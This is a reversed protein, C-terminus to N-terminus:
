SVVVIGPDISPLRNCEVVVRVAIMGGQTHDWNTYFVSYKDGNETYKFGGDIQVVSGDDDKTHGSIIAGQTNIFWFADKSGTEDVARDGLYLGNDPGLTLNHTGDLCGATMLGDLAIPTRPVPEAKPADDMSLIAGVAVFTAAAFLLLEAALPRRRRLVVAEATTPDTM